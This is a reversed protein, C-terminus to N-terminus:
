KRHRGCPPHHQLQDRAESLDVAALIVAELGRATYSLGRYGPDAQLLEAHHEKLAAEHMGVAECAQKPTVGWARIFIEEFEQYEPSDIGESSHARTIAAISIPEHGETALFHMYTRYGVYSPDEDDRDKPDTVEFNGHLITLAIHEATAEMLLRPMHGGNAIHDFEHIANQNVNQVIASRANQGVSVAGQTVYIVNNDIDASALEGILISDWPDSLRLETAQLRKVQQRIHPSLRGAAIWPEITGIYQNQKDAFAEAVAPERAQEELAAKHVRSFNLLEGGSAGSALWESWLLEGRDPQHGERQSHLQIALRTLYPELKTRQDHDLEVFAQRVNDTRQQLEAAIGFHIRAVVAGYVQTSTEEGVVPIPATADSDPPLPVSELLGLTDFIGVRGYRPLVSTYDDVLQEGMPNDGSM